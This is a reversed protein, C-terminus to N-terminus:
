RDESDSRPCRGAARHHIRFVSGLFRYLEFGGQACLVNLHALLEGAGSSDKVGAVTGESALQAITGPEVVTKVTVPINYVWLPLGVREKIYRYHELLEDQACPYYYPPTAAIGDLGWEQVSLALDVALQTSSASVNGIVPVRGGVEDVVTEIAILRQKDNLAAFEATTGAAWIGHVGNEILYNVLRRLSATDVKEDPMLPTLVPVIVGTIRNNTM